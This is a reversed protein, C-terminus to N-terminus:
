GARLDVPPCVGTTTMEVGIRVEVIAEIIDSLQLKRFIDTTIMHIMEVRKKV